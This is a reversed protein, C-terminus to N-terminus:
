SWKQKRSDQSSFNPSQMVNGLIMYIANYNIATSEKEEVSKEKICISKRVREYSNLLGNPTSTQWLRYKLQTFLTKKDTGDENRQKEYLPMKSTVLFQSPGHTKRM